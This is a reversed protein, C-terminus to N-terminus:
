ANSYLQRIYDEPQTSEALARSWIQREVDPDLELHRFYQSGVGKGHDLQLSELLVARETDALDIPRQDARVLNEVFAEVTVGRKAASARLKAELDRQIHLSM